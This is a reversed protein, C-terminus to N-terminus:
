DLITAKLIQMVSKQGSPLVMQIGFQINAGPETAGFRAEYAANATAGFTGDTAPLSLINRFRNRANITGQTLPGTSSLVIMTSGANVLNNIDIIGDQIDFLVGSSVFDPFALKVPAVELPNLGALILNQNLKQHLNKGSPKKIDGFIDTTTFDEVANNFTTRQEQTLLSWATTIFGFVARVGSQALSSPNTPTVKTRLFAGGRNKSAVHGGLKGRGDVVLAGWKIKM